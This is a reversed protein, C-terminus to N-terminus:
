RTSTRTSRRRTRRTPSPATPARPSSSRTAPSGRTTPRRRSRSTSRWRSASSAPARSSPTSTTSRRRPRPPDADHGGDKSGIAWPSGTDEPGPTLTNNPGKRNVEGIPHIPPLYIVDFGMEAVADLRKAATRFNGSTVKGTKADRTAGESRPFFEYWSGFLARTRDARFRIPARTVTLLERLPHALLVAELEPDQLAALRAEVPVSPTPRPRRDRGLRRRGRPEDLADKGTGAVVRELLLRAETFMLEVDVGAPIKIGPTTSGPRSRTPGRAPDRLDLEGEVDPTVWADYRDPSTATTTADAGPRPDPRQPDTLVVEASLQDHGERFVSARVPLPEGVTAKAAQRGLDVVPSVDM